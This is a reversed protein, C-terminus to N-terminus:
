LKGTIAKDAKEVTEGATRCAEGATEQVQGELHKAEGKAELNPHNVLEGAQDKIAGEVQKGKGTVEDKSLM